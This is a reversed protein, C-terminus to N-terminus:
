DASLWREAQKAHKDMLLGLDRLVVVVVVQGFFEALRKLRQEITSRSATPLALYAASPPQTPNTFNKLHDDSYTVLSFLPLRRARYTM